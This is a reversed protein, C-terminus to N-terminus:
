FYKNKRVNIRKTIFQRLLLCGIVIFPMMICVLGSKSLPEGEIAMNGHMEKINMVADKEYPWYHGKLFRYVEASDWQSMDKDLWCSPCSNRTPFKAALEETKSFNRREQQAKEKLLRVNVKCCHFM